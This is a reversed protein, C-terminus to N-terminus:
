GDTDTQLRPDILATELAQVVFGIDVRTAGGRQMEKLNEAVADVNRWNEEYAAAEAYAAETRADSDMTEVVAALLGTAAAALSAATAGSSEGGEWQHQARNLWEQPSTM